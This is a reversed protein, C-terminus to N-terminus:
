MTFVNRQSHLENCLVLWVCNRFSRSGYCVHYYVVSPEAQCDTSSVAVQVNNVEAQAAQLSAELGVISHM